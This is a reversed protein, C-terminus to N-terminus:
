PLPHSEERAVDIMRRMGNSIVRADKEVGSLYGSCFAYADLFLLHDPLLQAEKRAEPNEIERLYIQRLADYKQRRRTADLSHAISNRLSNIATLLDWMGPSRRSVCFGKALIQKHGFNLKVKEFVEPNYLVSRLISNLRGELLLHGKLVVQTLQDVDGFHKSAEEIFQRHEESPM